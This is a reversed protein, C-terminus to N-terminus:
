HPRPIALPFVAPLIDIEDQLPRAGGALMEDITKSGVLIEHVVRSAGWEPDGTGLRALEDSTYLLVVRNGEKTPPFAQEEGIIYIDIMSNDPGEHSFDPEVESM